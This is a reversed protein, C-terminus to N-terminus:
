SNGTYVEIASFVLFALSLLIAFFYLTRYEFRRGASVEFRELIWDAALYLIVAVITFYIATM